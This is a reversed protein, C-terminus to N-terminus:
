SGNETYGVMQNRDLGHGFHCTWGLFIIVGACPVRQKCRQAFAAFPNRRGALFFFDVRQSVHQFTVFHWAQWDIQVDDDGSAAKVIRNAFFVCCWMDISRRGRVVFLAFWNESFAALTNAQWASRNEVPQSVHQFTVFHWAQRAIQVNDGSSAAKVVRNAFFVCCRM